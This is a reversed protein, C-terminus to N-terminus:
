IHRQRYDRSEYRSSSGFWRMRSDESQTVGSTDYRHDLRSAGTRTAEAIAGNASSRVFAAWFDEKYELDYRAYDCMGVTVQLLAQLPGPNLNIGICAAAPM